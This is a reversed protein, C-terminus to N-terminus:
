DQDKYIICLVNKKQGSPTLDKLYEIVQMCRQERTM